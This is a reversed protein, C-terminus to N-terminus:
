WEGMGRVANDVTGQPIGAVRAIDAKRMGAKWARRIVQDLAAAYEDPAAPAAKPRGSRTWIAAVVTVACLVIVAAALSAWGALTGWFYAILGGVILSTLPSWRKPPGAQRSGGAMAAFRGLRFIGWIM